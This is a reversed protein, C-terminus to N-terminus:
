HDQEQENDDEDFDDRFEYGDPTEKLDDDSRRLFTIKRVIGTEPHVVPGFKENEYDISIWKLGDHELSPHRPSIGPVFM